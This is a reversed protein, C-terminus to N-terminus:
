TSLISIPTVQARYCLRLNQPFRRSPGSLLPGTVQNENVSKAAELTAHVRTVRTKSGDGQVVDDRAGVRSQNLMGDHRAQGPMGKQTMASEKQTRLRRRTSTASAYLFCPSGSADVCLSTCVRIMRTTRFNGEQLEDTVPSHCQTTHPPPSRALRPAPLM